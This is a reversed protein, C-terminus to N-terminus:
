GGDVWFGKLDFALQPHHKISPLHIKGGHVAYLVLYDEFIYERLTASELRALLREHSTSAEVSLIQRAMFDVGIATFRELNPIVTAFLHDLLGDFTQPAESETLFRRIDELNQEFNRTVRVKSKGGENKLPM